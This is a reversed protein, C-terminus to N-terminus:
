EADPDFDLGAATLELFKVEATSGDELEVIVPVRVGLDKKQFATFIGDVQRKTLDLAEAVDAATVPDGGHIKKLYNFVLKSNDKMAM